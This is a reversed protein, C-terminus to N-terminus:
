PLEGIDVILYTTRAHRRDPTHSSIPISNRWLNVYTMQDRYGIVNVYVTGQFEAGDRLGIRDNLYNVLEPEDVWPEHNAGYASAPTGLSYIAVLIPIIAAAGVTAVSKL